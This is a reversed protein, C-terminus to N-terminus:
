LTSCAMVTRINVYRVFIFFTVSVYNNIIINEANYNVYTNEWTDGKNKETLISVKNYESM